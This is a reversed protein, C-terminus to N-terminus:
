GTCYVRVCRKWGERRYVFRRGERGGERGRERGGPSWVAQLGESDAEQELGVRVLRLFLHLSLAQSRSDRYFLSPPFSSPSPHLSYCIRSSRIFADILGHRRKKCGERGGVRGGERGLRAVKGGEGM